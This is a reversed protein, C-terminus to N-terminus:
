KPAFFLLSSPPPMPPSPHISPHQLLFVTYEYCCCSKYGGLPSLQLPRPKPWHKRHGLPLRHSSLPLEPMYRLHPPPPQRQAHTRADRVSSRTLSLSYLASRFRDPEFGGGRSAFSPHSRLRLGWPSAPPGWLSTHAATVASALRHRAYLPARARTVESDEWLTSRRLRVCNESQPCISGIVTPTATIYHTHVMELSPERDAERARAATRPSNTHDNHAARLGYTGIKAAVCCNWTAMASVQMAADRTLEKNVSCCCGICGDLAAFLSCGKKSCKEDERLNPCTAGKEKKNTNSWLCNLHM